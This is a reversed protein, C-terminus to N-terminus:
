LLSSSSAAADACFNDRGLEYLDKDFMTLNGEKDLRDLRSSEWGMFKSWGLSLGFGKGRFVSFSDGSFGVSSLPCNKTGAPSVSTSITGVTCDGSSITLQDFKTSSEQRANLTNRLRFDQNWTAESLRSSSM